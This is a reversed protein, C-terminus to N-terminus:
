KMEGILIWHQEVVSKPLNYYGAGWSAREIEDWYLMFSNIEANYYVKANRDIFRRVNINM